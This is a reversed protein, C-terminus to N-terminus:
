GLVKGPNMLNAPDLAVKVQRMLRLKVPDVTGQLAEKRKSGVGHEASFSGGIAGIGRYLVAEVARMRDAPLPACNLVIHLNGDALHGFVYPEWGADLAKLGPVVRALYPEIETLPVSVDFSPATGHRRYIAETFERLHMLEREQRRSTAIIGSVRPSLTHAGEFLDQLVGQLAAEDDGGIVLVLYLPLTRDLAADRWNSAGATLDLYHRWLVEAARLQARGDGLASGVLDLAAGVNDLGILATATAKPTADLRVAVQTVIGLTGEAGIFLHKLDYGATNKVVRTLDSMVAGDPLVAELGLVRHRMVGYRFAMVGGANTSVMGGITASGRAALDIGPELGHAAAATQLAELTVGAEVVAVRERPDLRVVRNMRHLSVVLDGTQSVGGGVLGTRGGHTVIPITRAAALAVLKAVEATSGPSAVVGAVLNDAHWGPDLASMGDGTRLNAAGVVEAIAALDEAGLRYGPATMADGAGGSARAPVWRDERGSVARFRLEATRSPQSPGGAGCRCFRRSLSKRHLRSGRRQGQRAADEPTRFHQKRRPISNVFDPSMGGGFVIHVQGVGNPHLSLYWFYGPTLTVLLSPYVALLFTTRRRDGQMRTNNPHALAIKLPRGEPHYSLQVGGAGAPLDMEELKSLGGITGAHCVPLHYSEMFNEALIKWNTDWVHTERFTETYHEMGFDDILAQM